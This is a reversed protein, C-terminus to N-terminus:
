ESDKKNYYGNGLVVPVATEVGGRIIQLQVTEGSNYKSLYYKLEEITAFQCTDIRIIIDGSKIGAKQAASNDMFGTVQLAYRSWDSIVEVGLKAKAGELIDKYKDYKLFEPFYSLMVKIEKIAHNSAVSLNVQQGPKYLDLNKILDNYTYLSIGNITLLIDGAKIGAKEAGYEKYVGNIFLGNTKKNTYDADVGLFARNDYNDKQAHLSNLASFFIISFLIKKM